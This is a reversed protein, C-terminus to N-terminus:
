VATLETPRATATCSKVVASVLTGSFTGDPRRKAERLDAGRLVAYRRTSARPRTRGEVRPGRSALHPAWCTMGPSNGRRSPWRGLPPRRDQGSWAGQLLTSLGLPSRVIAVAGCEVSAHGPVPRDDSGTTRQGGRVDVTIPDCQRIERVDRERRRSARGAPAVTWPELATEAVWLLSPSLRRGCQNANM